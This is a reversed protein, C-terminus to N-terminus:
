WYCIIIETPNELPLPKGQIM